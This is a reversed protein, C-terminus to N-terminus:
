YAIVNKGPSCVQTFHETYFMVFYHMVTIVSCKKLVVTIYLM